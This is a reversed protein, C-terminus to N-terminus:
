QGRRLKRLFAWLGSRSPQWGGDADPTPRPAAHPAAPTPAPTPTLSPAAEYRVPLSRLARVFLSPRWPLQDPPLAPTLASFRAFLRRVAITVIRTALRQSPCGYAGAGWALHARTGRLADQPLAAAFRPDAHAGAISLMVPDGAAIRFRGLKLDTRAFRFALNTLVPNVMAVRNVAEEAAGMSLTARTRPDTIVELIVNCILGATFDLFAPLVFLERTLEDDTLDPKAQLLYSPIDQGPDRRKAAALEMFAAHLRHHAAADPGADLVRWIDMVMDDGHASSVGLLHNAVMLPLPRAYQAALDALGTPGGETVLGILDDCYREMARDLTQAQPQTHDQYPRLASIWAGRYAQHVDGDMFSSNDAQFLTTLPWDVPIRGEAYARWNGPRKSWNGGVNQLVYRVEDYGLVFWVPVGLLDVPAVPGYRGRLRERVVAPDADYERTLLPELPSSSLDDAATASWADPIM